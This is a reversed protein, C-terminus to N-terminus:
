RRVNATKTRAVEEALVQWLIRKNEAPTYMALTRRRVSDDSAPVRNARWADLWQRLAAISPDNLVHACPFKTFFRSLSFDAPCHVLIRAGSLLYDFSKTPMSFEMAGAVAVTGNYFQLPLYLLDCQRLDALLRDYDAEFGIEVRVGGIGLRALDEASMGTWISLRLSEDGAVLRCLDALERSNSDYIAGAFGIRIERPPRIADNPGDDRTAALHTAVPLPEHSVVHRLITCRIGYRLEYHESMHDDLALARATTLTKRELWQGFRSRQRRATAELFADHVHYILPVGTLRSAIWTALIWHPQAYVVFLCDPRFRRIRRVLLAALVPM